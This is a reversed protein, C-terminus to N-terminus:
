YPFGDPYTAIAPIFANKYIGYNCYDNFQSSILEFGNQNCRLNINVYDIAYEDEKSININVVGNERYFISDITYANNYIGDIIEDTGKIKLLDNVTINIGGYEKFTIGDFYFYYEKWTHGSMFEIEKILGSDYESAIGEIENYENIELGFVKGSLNPQYPQGDKVGWIYTRFNTTHLEEFAIFSYNGMLFPKPHSWYKTDTSEIIKAGEQNVFWIKGYFDSEGIDYDEELGFYCKEGVLAFMECCGDGDYDNYYHYLIDGDVKELLLKLYESESMIINENDESDINQNNINGSFDGNININQFNYSENNEVTEIVEEYNPSSKENSKDNVASSLLTLIGVGIGSFIWDKNENIKELIKKM